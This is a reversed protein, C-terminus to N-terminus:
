RGAQQKTDVLFAHENDYGYIATYHGAFRFPESFHELHFCDLKLGVVHGHDLLQKVNGWAKQTSATETVVLELDLNRAINQTLVDPKVRGGIFPFDM